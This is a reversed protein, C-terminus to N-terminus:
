PNRMGELDRNETKMEIKGGVLNCSRQWHKPRNPGLSKVLSRTLCVDQCVVVCVLVGGVM